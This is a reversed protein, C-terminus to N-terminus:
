KGASVVALIGKESLPQLASVYAATWQAHYSPAKTTPNFGYTYTAGFSCSVIHAGMRLAYDYAQFVVSAQIAGTM